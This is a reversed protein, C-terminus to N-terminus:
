ERRVYYDVVKEEDNVQFILFNLDDRLDYMKLHKQGEMEDRNPKGLLKQIENMSRGHFDYRKLLDDVMKLRTGTFIGSSDTM